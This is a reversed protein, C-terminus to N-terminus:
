RHRYYASAQNIAAFMQYFWVLGGIRCLSRCRIGSHDPRSTCEFMKWPLTAALVKAVLRLRRSGRRFNRARPPYHHRVGPGRRKLTSSTILGNSHAGTSRAVSLVVFQYINRPLHGQFKLYLGLRRNERLTEPPEDVGFLAGLVPAQAKRREVM